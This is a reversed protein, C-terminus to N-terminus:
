LRRAATAASVGAGVAGPRGDHRDAFVRFPPRPERVSDHAASPTCHSRRKRRGAPRRDADRDAAARDDDTDHDADDYADDDTHDDADDRADDDPGAGANRGARAGPHADADCPRDSDARADPRSRSDSDDADTDPDAEEVAEAQAESRAPRAGGARRVADGAIRRASRGTECGAAQVHDAGTRVGIGVAARPAHSPAGAPEDCAEDGAGAPEVAHRDGGRRAVEAAVAGDARCEAARDRTRRRSRGM